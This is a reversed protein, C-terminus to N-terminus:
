QPRLPYSPAAMDAGGHTSTHLHLHTPSTPSTLYLSPLLSPPLPSHLARVSPAPRSGLGVAPLGPVETSRRAARRRHPGHEHARAHHAAQLQEGLVQPNPSPPWPPFPSFPPHSLPPPFLLCYPTLEVLERSCFSLLSPTSIILGYGM